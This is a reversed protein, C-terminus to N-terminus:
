KKATPLELPQFVDSEAEVSTISIEARKMKDFQEQNQPYCSRDIDGDTDYKCGAVNPKMFGNGVTAFQNPDLSINKKKADAIISDRLANARTLTLNKAGQKMRALVEPTAGAKALCQDIAPGSLQKCKAAAAKRQLYLMTDANGEITLLAGGYTSVLDITKDFENRYLDAPFTNENAKFYVPFSFLRGEDVTNMQQRQRVLQEVAQKNFRSAEVGGKDLIGDSLKAYDLGLMFAPTLVAPKSILKLGAPGFAAGIEATTKTFNRPYDNDTFFKVNGKWGAFRAGSWLGETDAVGDANDLLMKGSAKIWEDYAKKQTAKNAMLTASAEQALMLGHVFKLAMQPNADYFDKRVYYHDGVCTNCTTTSMLVRTGKRPCEKGTCVKGAGGTLPDADPAIMFAADVSTDESFARAPFTSKKDNKNETIDRVWKVEVKTLDVGLSKLTAFYEVHPGYAQLAIKKGNLDQPTKVSESVVLVDGGESDTMKYIDVPATRPDANLLDSAMVVMGLTGRLFPTKCALYDEIQSVFRDERYIRASIGEKAFISGQATKETNGNAYITAMDGGWTIMPVPLERFSGCAQVPTKIVQSLPPAAVYDVAHAPTQLLATFGLAAAALAHIVRYKM